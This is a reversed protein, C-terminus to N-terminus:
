PEIDGDDTRAQGNAAVNCTAELARSRSTKTRRPTPSGPIHGFSSEGVRPGIGNIFALQWIPAYITKEHVMQQMKHLIAERKAHDLRSRRSRSCRTSTPIAATSSRCRGQGRLSELRTAANGFAGSAGQIINKYTKDSYGKFFGARELPRLECPHRGRRLNNLVAEGLNAYSFDCITTAPTSAMPIARRRGAAAKGQGSRIGAGAAALLIRLQRSRHQRHHAFLRADAGSQDGQPRDCSRGGAAGASRALAIESGMAGPFVALIHGPDVVAEADPGADAATRRGTRRPDFLRHRGRRAEARGAADGRRPHGEDGPAEGGPTKRWYQEFAELVLEVGPTFSVFKYPGAGIPAKKFGDDGVKEVYKRPVIWGAGTAGAYFTLFDPWPQKLRFRVHRADPTEIAAVRAKCCRRPRRRPLTRLLVERRGRDGARWQPIECRACCSITASGDETASWSEALSPALLKGPM